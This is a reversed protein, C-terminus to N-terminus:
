PLRNAKREEAEEEERLAANEEPIGNPLFRPAAPRGPWAETPPEDYARKKSKGGRLPKKDDDRNVVRYHGPPLM